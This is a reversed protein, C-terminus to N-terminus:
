EQERIFVLQDGYERETLTLTDQEVNYDYTGPQIIDSDASGVDGVTLIKTKTDVDCKVEVTQGGEEPRIIMNEDSIEIVDGSGESVWSGELPNGTFLKAIFFIAIIIIVVSSVTLITRWITSRKEENNEYIMFDVGKIEAKM